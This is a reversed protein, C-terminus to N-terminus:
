GRWWQEVVEPSGYWREGFAGGHAVGELQIWAAGRLLASSVPVLGDGELDTRGAIAQYSRLALRQTLPSGQEVALAGAVAVYHVADGFWAGPYLRDVMARLPTARVATHPSGLTYLRDAWRQGNYSRGGFRDQALFLRLMVGGSSHGILTIKGTPSTRALAEAQEAVRDLIRRWGFGWSTLLWDFRSVPVLQVPQQTHESLWGCMPQYAEATILFGGLILVPQVVVDPWVTLCPRHHIFPDPPSCWRGAIGSYGLRMLQRPLEDCQLLCGGDRSCIGSRCTVPWRYGLGLSLVMFFRGWVDLGVVVDVWDM